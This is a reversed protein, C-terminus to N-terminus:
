PVEPLPTTAPATPHHLQELAVRLREAAAAADAVKGLVNGLQTGDLEDFAEAARLAADAALWAVRSAEYADRIPEWAKRVKDVCARAEGLAQHERLCGRQASAYEAELAPEISKAAVSYADLVHAAGDLPTACGCSFLTVTVAL